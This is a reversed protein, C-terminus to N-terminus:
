VTWKDLIWQSCQNGDGKKCVGCPWNGLNDTLGFRAECKMVQTKGLNVGLDRRRWVKKWKQIKVLLKKSKAMLVLDDAYLLEMPLGARFEISLAELVIIFLLPSLVSGQRVGVRVGFAKSDCANM